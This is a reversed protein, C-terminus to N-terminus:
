HSKVMLLNLAQLNKIWNNPVQISMHSMDIYIYIKYMIYYGCKIYIYILKGWYNKSIKRIKWTSMLGLFVGLHTILLHFHLVFLVALWCIPGM